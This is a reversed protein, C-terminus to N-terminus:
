DLNEPQCDIQIQLASSPRLAVVNCIEEETVASPTIVLQDGQVKFVDPLSSACVGAHCCTNRDWTIKM